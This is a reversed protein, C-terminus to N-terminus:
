GAIGERRLDELLAGSANGPYGRIWFANPSDSEWLTEETRILLARLRADDQEVSQELGAEAILSRLDLDNRYDDLGLPYGREAEGVFARWRSILQADSM